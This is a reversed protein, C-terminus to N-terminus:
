LIIYPSEMSGDGASYEIGPVLSVVPRVGNGTSVYGDCMVGDANVYGVGTEIFHGFVDSGGSYSPSVLWYYDRTKQVNSNHLIYVEPLSMLGVKYMLKASPNTTSFRDSINICSLDKTREYEKFKLFDYTVGGDDKWGNLARISRDNCFITDEIYDDYDELLYHKYWADIGSKITSNTTNKTLMNELAKDITTIGDSLTITYMIGSGTYHFIYEVTQCTKLGNSECMYHHTSINNLNNYNEIEIPDALTYNTGDWTVSSGYYHNPAYDYGTTTYGIILRLTEETCIASDTNCTYKYDSYNSSNKVLEDKTVLLTDTLLLGSRTKGIMIKEGAYMFTYDIDTTATIYRPYTCTTYSDNCTYKNEYNVYDTVWDAPTVSVPNNITYTGDGNDTISNGFVISENNSSSIGETYWETFDESITGDIFYYPYINGYM